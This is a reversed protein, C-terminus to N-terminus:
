SSQRILTAIVGRLQGALDPDATINGERVFDQRAAAADRAGAGRGAGVNHDAGAELQAPAYEARQSTTILAIPKDPFELAGVLWDLMNKLAGAM